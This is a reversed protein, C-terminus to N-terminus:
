PTAVDRTNGQEAAERALDIDAQKEASKQLAAILHVLTDLGLKDRRFDEDLAVKNDEQKLQAVAKATQAKVKELEAKAILEEPTPEKPASQLSEILEPTIPRFYRNVSKINGIALTDEVTNMFEQPTVIPNGVGFKDIIMLQTDRIQSYMSLKMMDNGRALTPNVRLAMNADFLSTDIDIWKGQVEFTKKRNPADTIERLLGRFLDKFGTEAFIRAVLEIREQAGNVLAEIGMVNTSQLAKPDVGKSAESIGTRRQRIMDIQSMMEFISGGNFTARHEYVSDGPTGKVRVLKGMDDNMADALNVRFEDIYTDGFMSATMNDLAGRLLQTNIDQLKKVLDTVADGIVTHPRPDGCFVAFRVHSCPEDSIIKHNDGVTCIYRLEAYGDEDADVRIYYEGFRVMKVAALGNEYGPTRVQKEEEDMWSASGAYEMIDDFDYGRELLDSVSVIQDRGVLMSKHISKARRDIRFEEPPVAEVCQKPTSRTFKVMVEKFEGTEQNMNRMAEAENLIELDAEDDGETWVDIAAKLQELTINAFKKFDPVPTMDTGWQVVGIKSILADKLVSHLLMFGENEETFLYNLYQTQQAALEVNDARTPVVDVISTSSAFIRILSPLMAMVTDQVESSVATSRNMEEESYDGTNEDPAVNLTPLEGQYYRMNEVRVPSLESEDYDVADEILAAIYAQYGDEDDTSYPRPDEPNLNPFLNEVKAM